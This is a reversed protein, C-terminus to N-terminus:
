NEPDSDPVLIDEDDYTYDEKVMTARDLDFLKRVYEFDYDSSIDQQNSNQSTINQDVPENLKETASVDAIIIDEGNLLNAKSCEEVTALVLDFIIDPDTDISFIIPNGHDTAYISIYWDPKLQVLCSLWPLLERVSIILRKEVKAKLDVRKFSSTPIICKSRTKCYESGGSGTGYFITEQSKPEIELEALPTSCCSRVVMLLTKPDVEAFWKYEEKCYVAQLMDSNPHVDQGYVTFQHYSSPSSLLNSFKIQVLSDNTFILRATIQESSRKSTFPITIAKSSVIYNLKELTGDKENVVGIFCRSRIALCVFASRAPNVLRFTIADSQPDIHILDGLRSFCNFFKSIFPLNAPSITYIM